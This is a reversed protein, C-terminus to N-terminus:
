SAGLETDDILTVTAEGTARDIEVRVQCYETEETVPTPDDACSCGAIIGAYFIGLKACIFRADEAASIVVATHPSDTAYSTRSLGQQLPLQRPDLQEIEHKLTEGFAPTGWARLSETLHM